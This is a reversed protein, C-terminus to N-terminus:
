REPQQQLLATRLAASRAILRARALPKGDHVANFAGPKGTPV